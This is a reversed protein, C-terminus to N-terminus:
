QEPEVEILLNANADVIANAYSPILTTADSQHVVAPGHILTGAALNGRRYVRADTMGVGPMHVKRLDPGAGEAAGVESAVVPKDIVVTAAVRFTVLECLDDPSSFGYAREHLAHFGRLIEGVDGDSAVNVEYAQGVYRVDCSRVFSLTESALQPDARLQERASAELTDFVRLIATDLHEDDSRHLESMAFDLRVDSTLLGLASLTGPHPPVVVTGISLRRALEVAHLGGAGGFAVLSFERPDDGRERLAVRVAGEMAANAVDIIGAAAEEISMDLASAIRSVADRAQARDLGLRGALPFDESLRDLVVHCDTVTAREGGRGYCAPGPDSGASEPGVRLFGGDEVSAISGGGAGISHVQISPL